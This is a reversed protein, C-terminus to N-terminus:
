ETKPIASLQVHTWAFKPFGKVDPTDHGASKFDHYWPPPMYGFVDALQHVQYGAEKLEKVLQEKFVQRIQGEVYFSFLGSGRYNNKVHDADGMLTTLSAAFVAKDVLPQDVVKTLTDPTPFAM